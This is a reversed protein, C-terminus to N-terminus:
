LEIVEIVEEATGAVVFGGSATADLYDQDNTYGGYLGKTLVHDSAKTVKMTGSLQVNNITAGSEISTFAFYTEVPSTKSSYTLTLNSLTLNELKATALINGFLSVKQGSALESKTVTLNSITFGNGQIELKCIGNPKSVCSTGTADIDKILYYRGEKEDELDKFMDSVESSSRVITWDGEIYKAYIIVDETQGDQKVIPWQVLQTCAENAYYEVFTYKKGDQTFPAKGRPDVVKDASDYTKTAVVDGNKYKVPTEDKDVKEPIEANAGDVVLKVQVAVKLSWKAVLKWHDGEQLSVSFDVKEGLKYVKKEADAFTPNGESDLVAYYWGVFDYNKRSITATGSSPKVVGINLAKPLNGDKDKRFYMDKKDPTGDFAGGNSYYTVQAVVNRNELAEELTEGIACGGLCFLMALCILLLIWKSRVKKRM